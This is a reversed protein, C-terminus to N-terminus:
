RNIKEPHLMFDKESLKFLYVDIGGPIRQLSQMLLKPNVRAGFYIAKIKAPFDICKNKTNEMILRFEKEYSWQFYKHKHFYKAPSRRNTRTLEKPVKKVYKVKILNGTNELDRRDFGICVGEHNKAYHSWMIISDNVESLSYIGASYLEHSLCAIELTKSEIEKYGELIEKLWDALSPDAKEINEPSALEKIRSISQDTTFTILREFPDNLKEISPIYVRGLEIIEM